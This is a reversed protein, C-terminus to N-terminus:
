YKVQKSKKTFFREVHDLCPGLNLVELSSSELFTNELSYGSDIDRRHSRNPICINLNYTQKPPMLVPIESQVKPRSSQRHVKPRITKCLVKADREM